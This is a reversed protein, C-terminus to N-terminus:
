ANNLVDFFSRCNLLDSFNNEFLEFVEVRQSLPLTEDLIENTVPAFMAQRFGTEETERSALLQTAQDYNEKSQQQQANSVTYYVGVIGILLPGIMGILSPWLTKSFDTPQKAAHQTGHDKEKPSDNEM